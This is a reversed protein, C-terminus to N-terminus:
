TRCRLPFLNGFRATELGVEVTARLQYAPPWINKVLQVGDIWVTGTEKQSAELDLGLAVFIQEAEPRFTFTHRTWETSNRVQRQLNGRFAQQASFVGVLGDSGAKMYASLTYDAGPEVTIWGRNALLPDRVPIRYLWGDFHFVPMNEPTLAIKLSSRHLRATTRDVEGV